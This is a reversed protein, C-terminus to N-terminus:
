SSSVINMTLREFDKKWAHVSATGAGDLDVVVNYTITVTANGSGTVMFTLTPVDSDITLTVMDLPGTKTVTYYPAVDSAPDPIPDAAMFTPDGGQVYDVGGLESEFVDVFRFGAANGDNAFAAFTLTHEVGERKWVKADSFDGDNAVQTVEYVDGLLPMPLPATLTVKESMLGDKDVVYVVLPFSSGVDKMVDIVVGTAIEKVVKIYPENSKAKYGDAAIDDADPDEFFSMYNLNLKHYQRKESTAAVLVMGDKDVLDTSISLIRGVPADKKKMPPSNEVRVSIPKDITRDANWIRVM